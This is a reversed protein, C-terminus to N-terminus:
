CFIVGEDLIHFADVLYVDSTPYPPSLSVFRYYSTHPARFSVRRGLGRSAGTIIIVKGAQSLAPSKPDIAPYVDSHLTKTFQMSTTFYDNPLTAHDM